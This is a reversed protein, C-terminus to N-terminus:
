KRDNSTLAGEFWTGKTIKGNCDIKKGQGHWRNNM